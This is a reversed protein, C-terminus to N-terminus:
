PNGGLRALEGRALPVGTRFLCINTQTAAERSSRSRRRFPPLAPRVSATPSRLTRMSYSIRTWRSGTTRITGSARATRASRCCAASSSSTCWRKRLEKVRTALGEQLELVRQGVRVRALLESPDCPKVLYDDAGADLGEVVDERTQRSTLLILYTPAQNAERRVLRCVDPGDIFPMMWDLIALSPQGFGHLANWAQAGDSVVQLDFKLPKLTRSLVETSIRDDDAILVRM